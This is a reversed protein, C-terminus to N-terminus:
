CRGKFEDMSARLEAMMQMLEAKTVKASPRNDAYELPREALIARGAIIIRDLQKELSQIAPDEIITRPRLGQGQKKEVLRNRKRLALRYVKNLHKIKSAGGSLNLLLNNYWSGVINPPYHKLM